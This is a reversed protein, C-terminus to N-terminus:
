QKEFAFFETEKLVVPVGGVTNTTETISRMELRSDTIREVNYVTTDRFFGSGKLLVVSGGDVYWTGRGFAQTGTTDGPMPQVGPGFPSEVTAYTGTSAFTSDAVFTVEVNGSVFTERLGASVGGTTTGFETEVDVLNWEGAVAERTVDVNDDDNCAVVTLFALSLVLAYKM